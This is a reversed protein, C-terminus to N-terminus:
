YFLFVWWNKMPQGANDLCPNDLGPMNMRWYVLWPGMCDPAVSYYPVFKNRTWLAKQDQGGPGDFWRYHEITSYVSQTNNLDYQTRGTPMFHVNGGIVYYNNVTYDTGYYHAVLRDPQPYNNYDSGDYRYYYFNSFPLGWRTNLDFGAFEDFYTKYYPCFNYNAMGELAHGFNEMACGIGRNGNIFTIRFSGGSWPMSYYHGNGAPGYVGVRKNLNVDYYQKLEITEYPAGYSGHYAFFWLENIIGRQILEHLDLYQGPHDPDPYGYYGAFTDNYLDEYRFNMGSTSLRPFKTSNGDLTPTGPPDRLDVYKAVQYQLFAPASPDAYGHYKTSIKLANILDNTKTVEQYWDNMFVLVIVKPRMVHIRDHNDHIWNDSNTASVENPWYDPQRPVVAVRFYAHASSGIPESYSMNAGTGTVPGYVPTWSGAPDPSTSRYVTHAQGSVSHWTIEIENGGTRAVDVLQFYDAPDTPDTMWGYEDLNPVGDGDNDLLADDVQWDLPTAGPDTVESYRKEWVDSMGDGDTDTTDGALSPLSSSAALAHRVNGGKWVNQASAACALLAAACVSTFVAALVRM